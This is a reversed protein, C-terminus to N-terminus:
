GFLGGLLGGGIAGIGTGIGPIMSGLKAGALAGGLLGSGVNRQMPQSTTSTSGLNAPQASMAAQQIALQQLPLNRQADMQMQAYQQRTLGLNMANQLGQLNMGRAAQALQAAQGFGASRLGAATRAAERLAAENTLAEQVGYRSGGFAKAATAQQADRLAAMQRSQEIDQLSQQVVESEYPNQFAAIDEAGFPKMSLEYSKQEAAQYMPDFGAFQQPGLGGATQRALNLNDLYAQRMAPDIGTTQTATQTRGGKSM